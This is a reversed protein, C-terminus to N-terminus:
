ISEEIDKRRLWETEKLGHQIWSLKQNLEEIELESLGKEESKKILESVRKKDTEIQFYLAKLNRLRYTKDCYFHGIFDRDM